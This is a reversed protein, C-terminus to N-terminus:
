SSAVAFKDGTAPYVFISTGAAIAYRASTDDDGIEATANPSPGNAVYLVSTGVNTLMAVASAPATLAGTAGAAITESSVAKGLRIVNLLRPYGQDFFSAHLSM